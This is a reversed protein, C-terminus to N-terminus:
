SWRWASIYILGFCTATVSYFIWVLTANSPFGSGSRTCSVPHLCGAKLHLIIKFKGRWNQTFNALAIESWILKVARTKRGVASHKHPHHPHPSISIHHWRLLTSCTFRGALQSHAPALSDRSRVSSFHPRRSVHKPFAAYCETSTVRRLSLHRTAECRRQAGTNEYDAVVAWVM